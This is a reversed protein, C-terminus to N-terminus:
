MVSNSTTGCLKGRQAPRTTLRLELDSAFKPKAGRGVVGIAVASRNLYDGERFEQTLIVRDGKIHLQSLALHNRTQVAVIHNKVFTELEQGFYQAAHRLMRLNIKIPEPASRRDDIEVAIVDKEPWALM